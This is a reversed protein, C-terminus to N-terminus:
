SSANERLQGLRRTTTRVLNDTDLAYSKSDDTDVFEITGVYQGVRFLYMRSSLDFEIDGSDFHRVWRFLTAEDGAATMPESSIATLTRENGDDDTGLDQPASCSYLASFENLAQQGDNYRYLNVFVNPRRQNAPTLFQRVVFAEAQQEVEPAGPCVVYESVATGQEATKGSPDVDVREYRLEYGTPLDESTPLATALLRTARRQAEDVPASSQASGGGDGCATTLALMAVVSVARALALVQRAGKSRSTARNVSTMRSSTTPGLPSSSGTQWMPSRGQSRRPSRSSQAVAFRVDFVFPGRRMCHDAVLLKKRAFLTFSEDGADQIL